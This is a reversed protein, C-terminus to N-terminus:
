FLSVEGLAVLIALQAAGVIFGLVGGLIEINRFERSAIANVARELQDLDFAAIREAVLREVDLRQEAEQAIRETLPRSQKHLEDIAMEKLMGLTHDNVLNGVLPLARLRPGIGRVILDEALSKVLPALDIQRIEERLVHRQLIERAVLEGARQAIEPQRRPILGQWRIGLLNWQRRPHFLMRVAVRNTLWGILGTVLPLSLWLVLQM